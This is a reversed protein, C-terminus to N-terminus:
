LIAGIRVEMADATLRQFPLSFILFATFLRVLRHVQWSGSGGTWLLEATPPTQLSLEVSRAM